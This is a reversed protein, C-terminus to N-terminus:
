SEQKCSNTVSELQNLCFPSESSVVLLVPIVSVLVEYYLRFYVSCSSLDPSMNGLFADEGKSYNNGGVGLYM